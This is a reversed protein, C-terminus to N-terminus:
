QDVSECRVTSEIYGCHGWRRAIRGWLLEEALGNPAFRDERGPRRMALLLDHWSCWPKSSQWGEGASNGVGAYRLQM